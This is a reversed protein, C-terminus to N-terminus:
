VACLIRLPRSSAYVAVSSSRARSRADPMHSQIYARSDLSGSDVSWRIHPIKELPSNPPM